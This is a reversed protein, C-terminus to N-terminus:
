IVLTILVDLTLIKSCTPRDQLGHGLGPESYGSDLKALSLTKM